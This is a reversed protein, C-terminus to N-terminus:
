RYYQVLYSENTREQESHKINYYVWLYESDVHVGQTSGTIKTGDDRYFSKIIHKVAYDSMSMKYLGHYSGDGIYLTDGWFDGGGVGIDVTQTATELVIYEGEGTEPNKYFEGNDDVLLMVKTINKANNSLLYVINNKGFNDDGWVAQVKYGIDVPYKISCEALTVTTGLARPNKVVSFFNGDTNTDNAANGFVLCDNEENYDVCNWHGFDTRMNQVVPAIADDVVKYRHVLTTETTHQAFWLEDGVVTFDNNNPIDRYIAKVNGNGFTRVALENKIAVIEDGMNTVSSTLNKVQEAIKTVGILSNVSRVKVEGTEDTGSNRRTSIVVLKTDSPVPINTLMVDDIGSTGEGKGVGSIFNEATLENEKYFSINLFSESNSYGSMSVMEPIVNSVDFLYSRWATTNVPSGDANIYCDRTSTADELTLSVVGNIAEQVQEIHKESLRVEDSLAYQIDRDTAEELFQLKSFDSTQTCIVYWGVVSPTYVVPNEPYLDFREWPQLIYEANVYGNSNVVYNEAFVCNRMNVYNGSGNVLTYTKGVETPIIVTSYGSTNLLLVIGGSFGLVTDSQAPYHLLLDVISDDYYETLLLNKLDDKEESLRSVVKEDAPTYGLASKISDATVTADSGDKGNQGDKGPAGDRGDKGPEGQSGKTGNRVTFTTKVGNTLTATIVNSGGDATSTTTQDISKVGVGDAGPKGEAGDRGDQGDRGAPGVPGPEGDFEGSEKAQELAVNVAAPLEDKGLANINIRAQAQEAETLTQPKYEVAYPNNIHIDDPLPFASEEYKDEVPNWILWFGNEGPVPPHSNLEWIRQELETFESPITPWQATGSLSKSVFCQTTNTHKIVDGSRGRLQVTYYGDISVQEATLTHGVGGEMPELPIIDMASGVQVLLDWTWGSPLDGVVEVRRSLNDYQRALLGDSTITWDRYLIM